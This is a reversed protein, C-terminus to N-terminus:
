SMSYETELLLQTVLDSSRALQHFQSRTLQVKMRKNVKDEVARLEDQFCKFQLMAKLYSGKAQEKESLEQHLNGVSMHVKGFELLVEFRQVLETSSSRDMNSLVELSHNYYKFAEPINRLLYHVTALNV